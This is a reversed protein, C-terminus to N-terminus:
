VNEKTCFFSTSKFKDEFNQGAHAARTGTKLRDFTIIVLLCHVSLLPPPLIYNLLSGVFPFNGCFFTIKLTRVLM